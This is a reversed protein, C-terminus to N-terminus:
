YFREKRGDLMNKFAVVGEERKSVDLLYCMNSVSMGLGVSWFVSTHAWSLTSLGYSILM